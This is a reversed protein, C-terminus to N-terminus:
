RLPTVPEGCMPCQVEDVPRPDQGQYGCHECAYAPVRAPVGRLAM